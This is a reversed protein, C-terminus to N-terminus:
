GAPPSAGAVNDVDRVWPTGKSNLVPRKYVHIRIIWLGILDPPAVERWEQEGMSEM